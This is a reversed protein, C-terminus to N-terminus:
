RELTSATTARLIKATGYDSSLQQKVWDVQLKFCGDARRTKRRSGDPSEIFEAIGHDARPFIAIDIRKGQRQLEQLRSLTRAIPAISDEGGLVWLQPVKLERLVRMADYRWKVGPNERRLSEIEGRLLAGTYQGEIKGLWSENKRQAAFEKLREFGKTFGSAAIDATIEALKHASEVIRADYGRHRLEYEIDWADQDLPSGALGFGIEIFDAKVAASFGREPSEKTPLNVRRGYRRLPMMLLFMLTWLLRGM